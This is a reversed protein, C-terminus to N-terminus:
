KEINVFFFIAQFCFAIYTCASFYAELLSKKGYRLTLYM